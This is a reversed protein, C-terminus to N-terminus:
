WWWNIWGWTASKASSALKSGFNTWSFFWLHIMEELFFSKRNKEWLTWWHMQLDLVSFDTFGLRDTQRDTVKQSCWPLKCIPQCPTFNEQMQILINQQWYFSKKGDVVSLFICYLQVKCFWEAGTGRYDLSSTGRSHESGREVEVLYRRAATLQLFLTILLFLTKITFM